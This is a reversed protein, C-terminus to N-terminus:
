KRRIGNLFDPNWVALGFSVVCALVLPIVHEPVAYTLGGFLGGVSYLLFRVSVSEKLSKKQEDLRAFEVRLENFQEQILKLGSIEKRAEKYRSLFDKAMRKCVNHDNFDDDTIDDKVSSWPEKAGAAGGIPTTKPEEELQSEAFMM